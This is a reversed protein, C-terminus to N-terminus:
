LGQLIEKRKQQFEEETILNEDRMRKLARLRQEQAEYYASDRVPSDAPKTTVPATPAPAPTAVPMAKPALEAKMQLSGLPFQLWDLRLSKAETNKLEIPGAATRSGFQFEPLIHMGRYRDVFDLRADHVILNLAGDKVFLRATLGLPANMFSGGRRHTSLLVLDDGPAALSLAERIPELLAALEDKAFLAVFQTGDKFQVASLQARLADTTVQAPHESKPAQPEAPLRKLWTFDNLKWQWRPTEAGMCALSCSLGMLLAAAPRGHILGRM